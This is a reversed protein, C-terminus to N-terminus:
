AVAAPALTEGRRAAELANLVDAVLDEASELGVSLRVLNSRIGANRLAEPTVAAHTM